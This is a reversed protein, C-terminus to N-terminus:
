GNSVDESLANELYKVSNGRLIPLVENAVSYDCKSPIAVMGDSVIRDKLGLVDTIHELRSNTASSFEVYFDKRFNVSFATGHFSNTVVYRAHHILYLWESPSIDVAYSLMSDRKKMNRMRNGGIVVIRMGTEASLRRCYEFLSESGCVTYYLIYDGNGLHHPTELQEWDTSNLLLTPDVVIPVDKGTMGEVLVGGSKERVSIAHFQNLEAAAAKALAPSLTEVGFSPAYSIRRTTEGCFNLFYSLDSDTIHPNWVQDSGCVVADYRSGIEPLVNKSTVVKSPYLIFLKKEFRAFNRYLKVHLMNKALLRLRKRFACAGHSRYHKEAKMYVNYYNIIETEHGLKNVMHYLAYMQLTAGYSTSNPFTLIGVKMKIVM